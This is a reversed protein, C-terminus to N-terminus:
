RTEFPFEARYVAEATEMRLTAVWDRRGTACVPLMVTSEWIGAGTSRLRFENHGMDMGVMDFRVTAATAAASSRLTVAFPKLPEIVPGLVLEVALGDATASCGAGVLACASEVRLEIVGRADSGRQADRGLWVGLALVVAFLVGAGLTVWRGM